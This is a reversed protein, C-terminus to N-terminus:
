LIIKFCVTSGKKTSCMHIDGRIAILHCTYAMSSYGSGVFNIDVHPGNKSKNQVAATLHMHVRVEHASSLRGAYGMTESCEADPHYRPLVVTAPQDGTGEFFSRGGGVRRHNERDAGDGGKNTVSPHRILTGRSLGRTRTPTDQDHAASGLPKDATEWSGVSSGGDDGGDLSTSDSSKNGRKRSNASRQRITHRRHAGM